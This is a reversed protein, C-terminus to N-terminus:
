VRVVVRYGLYRPATNNRDEYMECETCYCMAYFTEMYGGIDSAEVEPYVLVGDDCDSDPCSQIVADRNSNDAMGFQIEIAM